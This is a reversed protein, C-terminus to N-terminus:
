LARAASLIKRDVAWQERLLPFDLPAAVRQRWLLCAGGALYAVGPVAVLGWPWPMQALPVICLALLSATALGTGLAFAVAALAALLWRLRLQRGVEGLEAGALEAYAGAHEVILDPQSILTRFLPHALM